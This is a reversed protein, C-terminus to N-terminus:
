PPSLPWPSLPSSGQNLSSSPLPWLNTVTWERSAAWHVPPLPSRSVMAPPQHQTQARFPTDSVTPPSSLQNAPYNHHAHASARPPAATAATAAAVAAVAFLSLLLCCRCALLLGAPCPWICRRPILLGYLRSSVVRSSAPLLRAHPKPIDLM